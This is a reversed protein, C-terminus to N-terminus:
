LSVWALLLVFATIAATAHTAMLLGAFRRARNKLLPIFPGFALAIGFLVAAAIGFSGVGMADGRRPGQLAIVLLGLGVAGLLGHVIGVVPWRGGRLHRLALTVGLAV